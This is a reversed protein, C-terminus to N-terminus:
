DVPRTYVTGGGTPMRVFWDVPLVPRAPEPLQPAAPVPPVPETAM